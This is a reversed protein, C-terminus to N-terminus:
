RHLDLHGLRRPQRPAHRDLTRAPRGSRRAPPTPLGATTPAALPASKTTSWRHAARSTATAPDDTYTSTPSDAPSDPLMAISTTLQAGPDDTDTPGSDDASGVTGVQDDVMQPGSPQDGDSQDDTYTSTPSDAPSDPLHRDLHQATPTRTPLTTRTPLGHRRRQWRHRSPRRGDTPREALDGDSQDDTYTSPALRRPQRPAHRDLHHAPRGSRGHRDPGSDDASGVTGVQDDVMQPGSPQDGDSQDDTYTSTPSDAPSDPLMAISTSLQADPDSRHDTPGSDDASGVTGVQDDVMQPGSQQDGDSQDDTYTSAASDAPSDPLMAISTSLQADPDDTDTLGVTTPAALPASKTTSWRHAARSTATAKTMPTPRPPRGRHSQTRPRGTRPSPEM